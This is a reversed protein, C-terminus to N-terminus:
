RCNMASIRASEQQKENSETVVKNPVTSAVDSEFIERALDCPLIKLFVSYFNEENKKGIFNLIGDRYALIVNRKAVFSWSHYSTAAGVAFVRYRFDPVFLVSHLVIMEMKDGVKCSIM